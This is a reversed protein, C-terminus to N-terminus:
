VGVYELTIIDGTEVDTGIKLYTHTATVKLADFPNAVFGKITADENNTFYAIYDPIAVDSIVLNKVIVPRGALADVFEQLGDIEVPTGAAFEYDALDLVPLVTYIFDDLAIDERKENWKRYRNIVSKNTAIRKEKILM